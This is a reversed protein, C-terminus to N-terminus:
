KKALDLSGATFVEIWVVFDLFLLLIGAIRELSFVPLREINRLVLWLGVVLLVVPVLYIGWGVVQRIMTVWWGTITGHVPSLLSLGTLLGIFTLLIGVLDIKREPSIRSLIPRAPHTTKRVSRSRKPTAKNQNSRSLKAKKPSM